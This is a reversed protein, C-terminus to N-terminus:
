GFFKNVNALLEDRSIPKILYGQPYLMICKKITDKDNAATVFMVPIQAYDKFAMQRITTLFEPGDMIPMKVDLLILDPERQDLMALADKASAALMVNYKDHLFGFFTKLIIPEDDVVMVTKKEEQTLAEVVSRQPQYKGPECTVFEGNVMHYEVGHNLKSSRKVEGIKFFVNDHIGRNAMIYSRELLRLDPHKIEIVTDIGAENGIVDAIFENQAQAKGGVIIGHQGHVHIANHALLNSRMVYDTQITDDAIVVGNEIFPCIVSGKSHVVAQLGGKIGGRIVIDEESYLNAAEVTGDVEIRGKAKISVGTLVDGKIHIAGVFETQTDVGYKANGEITLLNKVILETKSLIVEGAVEAYYTDDVRKVGEGAALSLEVVPKPAIVTSFITYGFAGSISHHYTCLKEGEQVEVKKRGYYVSGDENITTPKSEQTDTNFFYEFYGATTEGAPKGEALTVWIRYDNLAILKEINEERLGINVGESALRAKITDVTIERDGPEICGSASMMDTSIKLLLEGTM